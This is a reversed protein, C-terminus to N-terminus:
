AIRNMDQHTTIFKNDDHLATHAILLSKLKKTASLKIKKNNPQM